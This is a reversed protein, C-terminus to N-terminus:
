LGKQLEKIKEIIKEEKKTYEYTNKNNLLYRYLDNKYKCM